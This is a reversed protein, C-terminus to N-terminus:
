CWLTLLATKRGSTKSFGNGQRRQSKSVAQMGQGTAEDESLMIEVDAEVTM